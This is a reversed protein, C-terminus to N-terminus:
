DNTSSPSHARWLTVQDQKLNRDMSTGVEVDKSHLKVALEGKFVMHTTNYGTYKMSNINQPQHFPIQPCRQTVEDSIQMQEGLGRTNNEPTLTLHQIDGEAKQSGPTNPPWSKDRYTEQLQTM